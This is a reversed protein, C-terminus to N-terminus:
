YKQSFDEFFYKYKFKKQIVRRLQPNEKNVTQILYNKIDPDLIELYFKHDICYNTVFQYIYYDPDFNTVLAKFGFQFDIQEEFWKHILDYLFLQNPPEPMNIVATPINLTFQSPKNKRPNMQGYKCAMNHSLTIKAFCQLAQVVDSQKFLFNLDQSEPQTLNNLGAACYAVDMFAISNANNEYIDIVCDNFSKNQIFTSNQFEQVLTGIVTKTLKPFPLCSDLHVPYNELNNQIDQMQNISKRILDGRTGPRGSKRVIAADMTNAAKSITKQTEEIMEGATLKM